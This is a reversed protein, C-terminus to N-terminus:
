STTRFSRSSQNTPKVPFPVRTQMSSWIAWSMSSSLTYFRRPRRFFSSCRRSDGCDKLFQGVISRLLPNDKLKAELWDEKKKEEPSAIAEGKEKIQEQVIAGIKGVLPQIAKAVTEGDSSAKKMHALLDVHEQDASKLTEGLKRLIVPLFYQYHNLVKHGIWSLGPPLPLVLDQSGHPLAVQIIEQAMKEYVHTKLKEKQDDSLKPDKDIDQIQQLGAIQTGGAITGLAM